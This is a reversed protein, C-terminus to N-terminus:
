YRCDVIWYYIIIYNISRCDTTPVTIRLFVPVRYRALITGRYRYDTSTSLVKSYYLNITIVLIRDYM